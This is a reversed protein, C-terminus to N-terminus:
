FSGRARYLALACWAIRWHCRAGLNLGEDRSREGAGARASEGSELGEAVVEPDAGEAAGAREAGRASHEVFHRASVHDGPVGDERGM